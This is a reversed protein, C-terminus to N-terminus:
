STKPKGQGLSLRGHAPGCLLRRELRHHGTGLLTALPWGEAGTTAVFVHSLSAFFARHQELMFNRIGGSRTSVGALTQAILEDTHFAVRELPPAGDQSAPSDM